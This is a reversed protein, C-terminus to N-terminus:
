GPQRMVKEPSRRGEETREVALARSDGWLTLWTGVVSVVVCGVWLGERWGTDFGLALGAAAIFSVIAQLGILGRVGAAVTQALPHEGSRVLYAAYLGPLVVLLLSAVEGHAPVSRQHLVLGGALILTTAVSIYRASAFIRSSRVRLTVLIQGYDGRSRERVSLHARDTAVSPPRTMVKDTPLRAPLDDHKSPDVEAILAAEIVLDDPAVVEVHYSDAESVAPAPIAFLVSDIGTARWVRGRWRRFRERRNADTETSRRRQLKEDYAFKVIRRDPGDEPLLAFLVFGRALDHALPMLFDSKSLQQLTLQDGPGAGQGLDAAQTAADTPGDEAIRTFTDAIEGHKTEFEDAGMDLSQSAAYVLMQRAVKVNQRLTLMSLSTGDADRLDFSRLTEKELVAVPVYIVGHYSSVVDPITFDVTHRRRIHIDNLFEVTETRRHVWERWLLIMAASERAVDTKIDDIPDQFAGALTSTV